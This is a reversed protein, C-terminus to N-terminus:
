QLIWNEIICEIRKQKREKKKEQFLLFWKCFLFFFHTYTVLEIIKAHTLQDLGFFIYLTVAGYLLIPHFLSLRKSFKKKKKKGELPHRSEWPTKRDLSENIHVTQLQVLSRRVYM